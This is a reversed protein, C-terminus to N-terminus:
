SCFLQRLFFLQREGDMRERIKSENHASIHTCLHYICTYLTSHSVHVVTVTMYISHSVHVVTVTEVAPSEHTIVHPVAVVSPRDWGQRPMGTSGGRRRLCSQQRATTPLRGTYTSGNPQLVALIDSPCDLPAGVDTDPEPDAPPADDVGRREARLNQFLEAARTVADVGNSFAEM